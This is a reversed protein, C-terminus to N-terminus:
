QKVSFTIEYDYNEVDEETEFETFEVEFEATEDVDIPELENIFSWNDAIEDEMEESEYIYFDINVDKLTVNGTNEVKGTFVPYEEENDNRIEIDPGEVVEMSPAPDVEETFIECAGLTFVITILFTTILLNKYIRKM